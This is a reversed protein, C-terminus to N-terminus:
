NRNSNGPMMAVLQQQMQQLATLMSSARAQAQEMLIFKRRLLEIEKDVGEQLREIRDQIDTKVEEYTAKRQDMVGGPATQIALLERLRAVPGAATNSVTISHTGAQL